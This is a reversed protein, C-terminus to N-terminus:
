RDDRRAEARAEERDARIEAPTPCDCDDPVHFKCHECNPGVNGACGGCGDPCRRMSACTEPCEPPYDPELTGNCQDCNCTYGINM